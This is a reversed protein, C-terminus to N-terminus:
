RCTCPSSEAEVEVAWVARKKGISRCASTIGRPPYRPAHGTAPANHQATGARAAAPTTNTPTIRPSTPPSVVTGLTRRWFITTTISPSDTDNDSYANHPSSNNTCEAAAPASARVLRLRLGMRGGRSRTWRSCTPQVTYASCSRSRTRWATRWSATGHSSGRGTRDMCHPSSRIPSPASRQPRLSSRIAASLSCHM